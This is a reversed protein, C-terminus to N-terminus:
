CPRRPTAAAPMALIPVTIPVVCPSSAISAIVASLPVGFLAELEPLLRRLAGCARLARLMRSPVAAM